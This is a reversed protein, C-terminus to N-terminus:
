RKLDFREDTVNENWSYLHEVSPRTDILMSNMAELRVIGENSISIYCKNEKRSMSSSCINILKGVAIHLMTMVVILHKDRGRESLPMNIRLLSKAENGETNEEISQMM